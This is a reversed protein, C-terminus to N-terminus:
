GVRRSEDEVVLRYMVIAFEHGDLRESLRSNGVDVDSGYVEIVRRLVNRQIVVM